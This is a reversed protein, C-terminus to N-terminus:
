STKGDGDVDDPLNKYVSGIQNFPFLRVIAKGIVLDESVFGVEPSRSDVSVVRNDGMLFLEGGPVTVEDLGGNTYGDKTYPEDLIEGNRYVQGDAIAITDGGKAIVRKILLKKKGDETEVNSKFVVIDGYQIDSFKYSMKSLILYDNPQLTEQMSHERVITPQIFQAIIVAILVAILIDRIWAMAESGKKKKKEDAGIEIADSVGTGEAAAMGASDAENGGSKDDVLGSINKEDNKEDSTEIKESEASRLSGSISEAAQADRAQNQVDLLGAGNEQRWSGSKNTGDIDVNKSNNEEKM